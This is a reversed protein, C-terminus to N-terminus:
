GAPFRGANCLKVWELLERDGSEEVGKLLDALIEPREDQGLKFKPERSLITARFAIIGSSLRRYRAGMDEVKWAKPRGHEMAGVLDRVIADLQADDELFEIQVGFQASTYNWTPGWTRDHMWSPSIYGHPGLFLLKAKSERKLAEVQPNSRAFHGLLAELRGDAGVVPRLPLLTAEIDAGSGSAVWALPYERILRVLDAESPPQFKADRAHM